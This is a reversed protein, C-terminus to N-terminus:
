RRDNMAVRGKQFDQEEGLEDGQGPWSGSWSTPATQFDGDVYVEALLRSGSSCAQWAPDSDVVLSTGDENYWEAGFM